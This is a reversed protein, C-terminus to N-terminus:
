KISWVRYKLSSQDTHHHCQLYTDFYTKEVVQGNPDLVVINFGRENLAYNQEDIIIRAENANDKDASFLTVIKKENQSTTEIPIKVEIEVTGKQAGQKGRQEKILQGDKFVGAYAERYELDLAESGAQRFYLQFAPCSSLVRSAEDRVAFLIYNSAHRKVFADFYEHPIDIQTRESAEFVGAITPDAVISRPVLAYFGDVEYLWHNKAALVPQLEHIFRKGTILTRNKFVGPYFYASDRLAQRYGDRLKSDFRALHGSNYHRKKKGLKEAFFMDDGYKNYSREHSPHMLVEKSKDILANWFSDHPNEIIPYIEHTFNCPKIQPWLDVINLFLAIALIAVKTKKEWSFSALLKVMYILIMYQLLWVYRGTSRLIAFKELVYEPLDLRVILYKNFSIVHSLSFVFMALALGLMIWTKNKITIAKREKLKYVIILVLVLLVGIGLYAVGEFQTEYLRPWAPMILGDIKPTFFTNLNASYMGLGNSTAQSSDLIHNGVILWAFILFCVASMAHFFILKLSKERLLLYRFYHIGTISVNFVILYPHTWISLAILLGQKWWIGKQDKKFYLYLAALILWHACLNMHAIRDLFSYSLVLLCAGLAALVEHRVGIARILKYGFVAQLIYCMLYWWGFYQFTEPLFDRILKFPIAFWPIGGTLGISVREPYSYGDFLGLPFEWPANRFYMWAMYDPTWDSCSLMLWTDYTPDLLHFGLKVGFVLCAFTIISFYLYLRKKNPM